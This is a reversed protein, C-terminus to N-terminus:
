KRNQRKQKPFYIDVVPVFSKMSPKNEISKKENKVLDKNEGM